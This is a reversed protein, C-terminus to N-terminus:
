AAIRLGHEYRIAAEVDQQSIGLSRYTDLIVEVTEGAAALEAISETRVGGISPLGFAVNPDITIRRNVDKGLPFWRAAVGEFEVRNVFTKAVETLALQYGDDSRGRVVLLLEDSLDHRNQEEWLLQRGDTYLPRAEALPYKTGLTRRLNVILPRLREIPLQRYRFGSLFGAEVFEGWTVDWVGTPEERILPEIRVDFRRDGDLWRRLTKDPIGLFRAAENVQFITKDLLERTPDV